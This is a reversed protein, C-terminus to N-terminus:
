AFSAAALVQGLGQTSWEDVVLIGARELYWVRQRYGAKPDGTRADVCGIRWERYVADRGGVKAVGRRDPRGPPAEVLGDRDQPCGEVGAGPHWVRDPDFPALQNAIAIQGPGLLLFGPCDVGGASRRCARGTAVAVQDGGGGARWTGSLRLNLGRFRLPQGAPGTPATTVPVRGTTTPIGGTTPPDTTGPRTTSTSLATTTPVPRTTSSDVLAPGSGGCGALACAASTAALAVTVWSRRRPL